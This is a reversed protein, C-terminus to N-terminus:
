NETPVLEGFKFKGLGNAAGVWIVSKGHEKGFEITRVDVLTLDKGDYFKYRGSELHIVYIGWYKSVVFMWKGRIIAKADQLDLKDLTMVNEWENNEYKYLTRAGIAYITGDDTKAFARIRIEDENPIDVRELSNTSYSYKYIYPFKKKPDKESGVAIFVTDDDVGILDFIQYNSINIKHDSTWSPNNTRLQKTELDLCFLYSNDNAGHTVISWLYKNHLRIKEMNTRFDAFHTFDQKSEDWKYVNNSVLYLDNKYRFLNLVLDYFEKPKLQDNELVTYGYSVTHSFYTKGTAEDYFVNEVYNSLLGETGVTKIQTLDYPDDFYGFIRLGMFNGYENVTLVVEKGNNLKCSSVWTGMSQNKTWDAYILGGRNLSEEVDIASHNGSLIYLKNRYVFLRAQRPARTFPLEQQYLPYPILESGNLVYLYYKKNEQRSARAFFNKMLFYMEGNFEIIDECFLYNGSLEEDYIQKPTKGDRDDGFVKVLTAEVTDYYYVGNLASIWITGSSDKYIRWVDYGPLLNQVAGNKSIKFLGYKSDSIYDRPDSQDTIAESAGVWFNGEDDIVFRQNPLCGYSGRTPAFGDSRKSSDFLIEGSLADLIKDWYLAYIKNNSDESWQVKGPIYNYGVKVRINTIKGVLNPFDEWKFYSYGGDWGSVFVYEENAYITTLVDRVLGAAFNFEGKVEYPVRYFDWYNRNGFANLFEDVTVIPQSPNTPITPSACSFLLVTVILVVVGLSVHLRLM